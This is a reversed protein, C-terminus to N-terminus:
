LKKPRKFKTLELSEAFRDIRRAMLRLKQSFSLKIPKEEKHDDPDDDLYAGDNYDAKDNRIEM